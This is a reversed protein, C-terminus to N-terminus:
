PVTPVFRLASMLANFEGEHAAGSQLAYGLAFFAAAVLALGGALGAEWHLRDDLADLGHEARADDATHALGQEGGVEGLAREDGPLHRLVPEVGRNAMLDDFSRTTGWRGTNIRIIPIGLKYAIEVYRITDDLARRCSAISAVALATAEQRQRHDSYARRWLQGTGLIDTEVAFNMTRSRRSTFSM